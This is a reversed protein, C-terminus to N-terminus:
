GVSLVVTLSFPSWHLVGYHCIFLLAENLLPFFGRPRVGVGPACLCRPCSREM